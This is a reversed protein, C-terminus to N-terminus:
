GDIYSLGCNGNERVKWVFAPGEGIQLELVIIKTSYFTNNNAYAIKTSGELFDIATNTIRVKFENDSKGLEICPDGNDDTSMTIYATKKTVSDVLDILKQLADNSDNQDDKMIVMADEIAKLNGNITSMNFTWGDPTQTMLSGGNEDTVLHSIMNSLQTITSQAQDIRTNINSTTNALDENTAFLDLNVPISTIDFTECSAIYWTLPASATPTTGGSIYMQGGVSFPGGNSCTHMYMYEEFKGTGINPTLWKANFNSETSASAAETTQSVVTPEAGTENLATLIEDVTHEQTTLLTDYMALEDLLDQNIDAVADVEVCGPVNLTRGVPIKAILRRVFIANARETIPQIIGGWDPEATGTTKVMLEYNAYEYPNDSSKTQRTISVTPNTSQTNNYISCENNSNEFVVDKYISQGNSLSMGNGGSKGDAGPNGTICVGNRSPQYSTTGDGKTVAARRWIYKGETWTPQVTSWTGDVLETPSSSLYFEDISSTIAEKEVTEVRTVTSSIRDSEVKIKADTETKSYYNNKLATDTADAKEGIETISKAQLTINNANQSINTENTQVRKTLAAVDAQAKDAATQANDAATQANDAKQQATNAAGQATAADQKAKDAAEQAKDAALNAEAADALANNAATQAADVAAQAAAIDEETADIRNTVNELNQKAENLDSQAAQAAKDAKDAAASAADAANQATDAKQQATSAATQANTAATKAADATSQATNAATQAANAKALADDVDKKAQETDSELTEIKSVQSSINDANQTIQSQLRGELEVNETKTSYTESITTELEGVKTTISTELEAKTNGVEVKTAYTEKIASIEGAQTELDELAGSIDEKADNVENQLRTVEAQANASAAQSQAAQTKAESADTTAQAAQTKAENANTNATNAANIANTAQEKAEDAATSAISSQDIATEAKETAQQAKSNAENASDKAEGAQELAEQEKRASPPFTFNGIITAKHNEISVLVRDGEEVDVVESIPTVTSSGDLQVYKVDNSIVVTGRLYTSQAKIESDNTIQAFEKLLNRDLEM